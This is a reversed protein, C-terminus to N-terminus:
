ERVRVIITVGGLLRGDETRAVLNVPHTTGPAADDPVKIEFRLNRREKAGFEVPQDIPGGDMLVPMGPPLRYDGGKLRERLPEFGVYRTKTSKLLSRVQFRFEDGTRRRPRTGAAASLIIPEEMPAGRVHLTPALNALRRALSLAVYGQTRQLQLQVQEDPEVEYRTAAVTFRQARRALNHLPVDIVLTEGPLPLGPNPMRYVQTNEQGMNNAPNTDLPHFLSAQLCYHRSEEGAPVAPTHWRFQAIASGLPAINVFRAVEQGGSTTEVPVLDPSGFSWPRYNLRVRVGIAADTSANHAQVFVIYDTDDELHYSDPEIIGPTDARAIWIDPNNWTVPLGQSMLLQQSYICPDPRRIAAEPLTGCPPKIEEPYLNRERLLKCLWEWLLLLILPVLILLIFVIKFLAVAINQLSLLLMRLFGTLDPM